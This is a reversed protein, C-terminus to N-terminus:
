CSKPEVMLLVDGIREFLQHVRDPMLRPQRSGAGREHDQQMERYLGDRKILARSGRRRWYKLILGM